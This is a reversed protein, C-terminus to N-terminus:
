GGIFGLRAFPDPIKTDTKGPIFNTTYYMEIPIEDYIDEEEPLGRTTLQNPNIIYIEQGDDDLELINFPSINVANKHRDYLTDNRKNKTIQYIGSPNAVIFVRTGVLVSGTFQVGNGPIPFYLVTGDPPQTFPPIPIPIFTVINPTLVTINASPVTITIVVGSTNVYKVQLNSYGGGTDQTIGVLAGDPSTITVPDGAEVNGANDALTFTYAAIGYTGSIYLRNIVGTSTNGAGLDNLVWRVGCGNNLLDLAFPISSPTFTFPGNTTGITNRIFASSETPIDLQLYLEISSAASGAQIYCLSSGDAVLSLTLPLFGTPLSAFAIPTSSGDLYISAGVFNYRIQGAKNANLAFFEIYDVDDANVAEVSTSGGLIFGTGTQSDQGTPRIIFTGM